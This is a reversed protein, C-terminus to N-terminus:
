RMRASVASSFCNIESRLVQSPSCMAAIARGFDFFQQLGATRFYVTM